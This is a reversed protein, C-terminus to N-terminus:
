SGVYRSEFQKKIRSLKVRLSGEDIEIAAAIEGNPANGLYMLLVTRDTESLSQTFEELIAEPDRNQGNGDTVPEKAGTMATERIRRRQRRLFVSVTNSAVAFFWTRHNSRGQFGDLSNWLALLIEQELDPYNNAGANARSFLRLRSRNEELIQDFLRQKDAEAIM